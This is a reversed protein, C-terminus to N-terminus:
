HQSVPLSFNLWFSCVIRGRIVNSTPIESNAEGPIRACVAGAAVVPLLGTAVGAAFGAAFAGVFDAAFGVALGVALFGAFDGAGTALVTESFFGASLSCFSARRSGNSDNIPRLCAWSARALFKGGPFAPKCTPVNRRSPM